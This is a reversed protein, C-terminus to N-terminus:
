LPLIDDGDSVFACRQLQQGNKFNGRKMIRSM